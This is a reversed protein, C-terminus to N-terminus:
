FRLGVFLALTHSTLLTFHQKTKYSNFLWNDGTRADVVLNQYSLFRIDSFVSIKKNITYDMGLGSFWGGKQTRHMWSGDNSSNVSSKVVFSTEKGFFIAPSLRNQLFRYRLSVPTGIITSEFLFDSNNVMVDGTSSISRSAFVEAQLSLNSVFFNLPINFFVGAPCTPLFSSEVQLDGEETEYSTIRALRIGSFIGLKIQDRKLDKEYNICNDSKCSERLYRSTIKMLDKRNYGVDEIQNQITSDDSFISSLSDRYMAIFRPFKTQEGASSVLLENQNERNILGVLKGNEKQIYFTMERNGWNHLLSIKGSVIVEAFFPRTLGRVNFRGAKFRPGNDFQYGNIETASFKIAPGKIESRFICAKSNLYNGRDLIFGPMEENKSNILVGKKYHYQAYANSNVLIFCVICAFAVGSAKM